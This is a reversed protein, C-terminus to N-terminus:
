EKGEEEKEIESEEGVNIIEFTASTKNHSTQHLTIEYEKDDEWNEAEPLQDFTLTISQETEEKDMEGEDNEESKRFYTKPM